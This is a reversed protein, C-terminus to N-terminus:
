EIKYNQNIQKPSFQDATVDDFVVDKFELRRYQVGKDFFMAEEHAVINYNRKDILFFERVIDGDSDLKEIKVKYCSKGNIIMDKQRVKEVSSYKDFNEPKLFDLWVTLNNLRTLSRENPNSIHVSRRTKRYKDVFYLTGRNYIFYENGKQFTSGWIKGGFVNDKEDKLLSIYNIFNLTDPNGVGKFTGIINYRVSEHSKINNIMKDFIKQASQASISASYSLAILLFIKRM